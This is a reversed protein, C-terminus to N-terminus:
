AATLESNVALMAFVADENKAGRLQQCSKEDRLLRSVEALARLHSAGDNKPSILSFILDVPEGDISDYAVPKSLSIFIGLPMDLGDMKCHPIAISNGFGTSGLTERDQLANLVKSESIDYAKNALSAIAKLVDEKSSINNDCAIASSDLRCNIKLM